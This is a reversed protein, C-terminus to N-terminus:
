LGILQSGMGNPKPIVFLPSGVSSSSFWMKGEKIMKQLYQIPVKEEAQSLQYILGMRLTDDLATLVIRHACETSDQFKGM